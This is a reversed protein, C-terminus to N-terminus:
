AVGHMCETPFGVVPIRYLQHDQHTFKGGQPVEPIFTGTSTTEQKIHLMSSASMCIQWCLTHLCLCECCQQLATSSVAQTWTGNPCLKITPDNTALWTPKLPDFAGIPRGGPCYYKQPCVAVATIIAGRMQRAYHGPIVVPSTSQVSAILCLLCCLTHPLTLFIQVCGAATVTPQAVLSQYSM